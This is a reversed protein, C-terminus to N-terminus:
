RVDVVRGVAVDGKVLQNGGITFRGFRQHFATGIQDHNFCNEIGKVSFGRDKRHFFLHFRQADIQRDHDGAGDSVGGPTGKRPLRRFRKVVGQTVGIREGEAQVTREARVFQALIYLFKGADSLAIHGRVRVGSQWVGKAFVIKIRRSHGRLDALPGLRAKQVDDPAATTGRRFM